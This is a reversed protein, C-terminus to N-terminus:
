STWNCMTKTVHNTSEKSAESFYHTPGGRFQSLTNINFLETNVWIAPWYEWYNSVLFPPPDAPKQWDQLACIWPWINGQVLDLLQCQKRHGTWADGRDRGRIIYSACLICSQTRKDTHIICHLYIAWRMPYETTDKNPALSALGEVYITSM